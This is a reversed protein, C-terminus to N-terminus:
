HFVTMYKDTHKVTNKQRKFMYIIYICVCMNYTYPIYLNQRSFFIGWSKLTVYIYKYM